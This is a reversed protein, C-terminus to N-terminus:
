APAPVEDAVRVSVMTAIPLRYEAPDYGLTGPVPDYSVPITLGDEQMAEIATELAEQAHILLEALTAGASTVGPLAPFSITWGDGPSIPEAIGLYQRSTM